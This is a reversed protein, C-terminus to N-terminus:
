LILRTSLCLPPRLLALFWIGWLLQLLDNVRICCLFKMEGLILPLDIHDPNGVKCKKYKHTLQSETNSNKWLRIVKLDRFLWLFPDRKLEKMKRDSLTIKWQKNKNASHSKGDYKKMKGENTTLIGWKNDRVRNKQLKLIQVITPFWCQCLGVHIM